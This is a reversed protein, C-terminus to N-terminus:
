SYIVSVRDKSFFYFRVNMHCCNASLQIQRTNSMVKEDIRENSSKKAKQSDSSSNTITQKSNGNSNSRANLSNNSKLQKKNISNNSSHNVNIQYENPLNLKNLLESTTQNMFSKLNIHVSTKNENSLASLLHTVILEIFSESNLNIQYISKSILLSKSNEDIFNQSLYYPWLMSKIESKLDEKSLIDSNISTSSDNNNNKNNDTCTMNLINSNLNIVCERTEIDPTQLYHVLVLDPRDLLWYCRRHFSSIISSHSYCGYILGVGNIKLCMRDERVSNAGGTKRRKWIFLDKKFNKVKRRDFLFVSGNNPRQYAENSLWQNLLKNAPIVLDSSSIPVSNLSNKTALTALDNCMTLIKFIEENTHWQNLRLRSFPPNLSYKKTKIIDIQNKEGSDLEHQQQHHTSDDEDSSLYAGINRLKASNKTFNSNDASSASSILKFSSNSQQQSTRFPDYKPLINRTM